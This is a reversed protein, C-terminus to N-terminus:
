IRKSRHLVSVSTFDTLTEVNIAIAMDDDAPTRHVTHLSETTVLVSASLFCVSSSKNCFCPVVRRLVSSGYVFLYTSM